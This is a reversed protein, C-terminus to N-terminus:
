ISKRSHLFEAMIAGGIICIGGAIQLATMREGLFIYAFVIASLPDVYGFISVKQAPLRNINEFYLYCALATNMCCLIILPFIDGPLIDLSPTRRIFFKYIFCVVFGTLMQVITNELGNKCGAKKNLIILSAYLVASIFAFIMGTMNATGFQTGNILVFGLFVICFAVIKIGSLKEHFFLPSFVMVLVPGCYYILTATCVGALEYAHFLTIWSIGMAIGSLVLLVASKKTKYFTFSEKKLLFLGLLLLGGILTRCLVIDVSNLSIFSAVIGNSGFILMSLIYLFLPLRGSVAHTDSPSNKETKDSSPNM